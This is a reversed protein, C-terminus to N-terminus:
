PTDLEQSLHQVSGNYEVFAARLHVNEIGEQKLIAEVSNILISQTTVRKTLEGIKWAQTKITEDRAIMAQRLELADEKAALKFEEFRQVLNAHQTRTVLLEAATEAHAQLETERQKREASNQKRLFFYIGSVSTILSVTATITAPLNQDIMGVIWSPVALLVAILLLIIGTTASVSPKLRMTCSDSESITFTTM